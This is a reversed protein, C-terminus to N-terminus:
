NYGKIFIRNEDSDEIIQSKAAGKARGAIVAKVGSAPYTAIGKGTYVNKRALLGKDDAVGMGDSHEAM